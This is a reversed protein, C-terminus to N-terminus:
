QKYYAYGMRWEASLRSYNPNSNNAALGTKQIKM